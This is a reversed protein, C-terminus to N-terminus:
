KYQVADHAYYFLISTKKLIKKKRRTKKNLKRRRRKRTIYNKKRSYNKTYFSHSPRYQCANREPLLDLM